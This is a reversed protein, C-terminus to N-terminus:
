LEGVLIRRCLANIRTYPHEEAISVGFAHDYASRMHALVDQISCSAAKEIDAHSLPTFDHVYRNRLGIPKDVVQLDELAALDEQRNQLEALLRVILRMNSRDAERQKNEAEPNAPPEPAALGIMSLLTRNENWWSEKYSARNKNSWQVRLREAMLQLCGESFRHLRTLFDAWDGTEAAVHALYITERLKVQESRDAVDQQLANITNRLTRTLHFTNDFAVAASKLDLNRRVDAYHLTALLVLAQQPELVGLRQEHEVLTQASSYAYADLLVSLSRRLTQASIQRMTDLSFARDSDPSVYLTRARVGFVDSGVLLLMTNMQQTGGAILLYVEAAADIYEAIKPLDRRCFDYMLDFDAPNRDTSRVRVQKKILGYRQTVLERMIEAYGASDNDRYHAPTEAPQDTAFFVFHTQQTDQPIYRLAKEVIPLRIQQKFAAFVAPQRLYDSAPRPLLAGTKPHLTEAPLDVPNDLLLDRTGLNCLLWVSM